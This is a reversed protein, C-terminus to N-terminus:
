RFDERTGDTYIIRLPVEVPEGDYMKHLKKIYLDLRDPQLELGEFEELEVDPVWLHGLGFCDECEMREQTDAIRRLGSWCKECELWFAREPLPEKGSGECVGCTDQQMNINCIEGDGKCQHCVRDRLHEFARAADSGFSTSLGIMDFSSTGHVLLEPMGEVPLKVIREIQKQNTM